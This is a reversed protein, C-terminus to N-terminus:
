RAMFSFRRQTVAPGQSGRSLPAVLIPSMPGPMTPDLPLVYDESSGLLRFWTMNPHSKQRDIEWVWDGEAWNGAVHAGPPYLLSELMRRGEFTGDVELAWEDTLWGIGVEPSSPKKSKTKVIIPRGTIM